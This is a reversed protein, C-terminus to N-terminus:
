FGGAANERCISSGEETWTTERNIHYFVQCFCGTLPFLLYKMEWFVLLFPMITAPNGFAPSDQPKGQYKTLTLKLFYKTPNRDM